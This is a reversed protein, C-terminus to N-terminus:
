TANRIRLMGICRTLAVHMAEGANSFNDNTIVGIDYADLQKAYVGQGNLFAAFLRTSLREGFSVQM